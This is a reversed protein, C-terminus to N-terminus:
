ELEDYLRLYDGLQARGDSFTHSGWRFETASDVFWIAVEGPVADMEAHEFPDFRITWSGTLTQDPPIVLETGDANPYRVEVPPRTRNHIANVRIRRKSM